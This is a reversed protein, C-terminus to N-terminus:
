PTAKSKPRHPGDKAVLGAGVNKFRLVIRDKDIKMGVYTPGAYLIREGCALARAALALRAGVPQKQKPRIDKEDGVDTIVAMATNPVNQATLLQAERLEAWTSEAPETRIELFPALQV